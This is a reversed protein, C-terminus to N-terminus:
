NQCYICLSTGGGRSVCSNTGGVVDQLERASLQLERVTERQVRLAKKDRNLKKV